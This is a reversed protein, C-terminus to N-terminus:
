ARRGENRGYIMSMKKNLKWKHKSSRLLTKERSFRPVIGLSSKAKLYRLKKYSCEKEREETMCAM